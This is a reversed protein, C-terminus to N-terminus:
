LGKGALRRGVFQTIRATTVPTAKKVVLRRTGSLKGGCACCRRAGGDVRPLESCDAHHLFRGGVIEGAALGCRVCAVDWEQNGGEGM